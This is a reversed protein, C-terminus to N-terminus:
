QKSVETNSGPTGPKHKIYGGFEQFVKNVPIAVGFGESNPNDASVKLTNVGIVEGNQTILPGGSNGPLIQADTNIGDSTFNTIVGATVHDKLGLPSGVAYINMGQYPQIAQSMVLFPSKCSDVKLLALDQNAAIQVLKAQLSSNDKLVIKFSKSVNAISSDISFESHRKEFDREQSRTEEITAELKERDQNYTKLKYKYDAEENNKYGGPRLGDIYSRQQILRRKEIELREKEESIYKKAEKIENKENKLEEESSKWSKTTTPRVVHKNTVLYCDDSVFFGSGTGINTKVTVVALTASEVPNKPNYKEKLAKDFDTGNGSGSRSNQYAATYKGKKEGPPQDSFHWRGSEDQYKYIEAAVTGFWCQLLILAALRGIRYRRSTM